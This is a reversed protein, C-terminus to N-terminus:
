MNKHNLQALDASAQDVYPNNQDADKMVTLYHGLAEKRAAVQGARNYADALALLCLAYNPNDKLAGTLITIASDAKGVECLAQGLLSAFLMKEPLMSKDYLKEYDNVASMYEGRAMAIKGSLYYEAGMVNGEGKVLTDQTATVRSIIGKVVGLQVLADDMKGQDVYVGGLLGNSRLDDPVLAIGEQLIDMAKDPQRNFIYCMAINGDMMTKLRIGPCADRAKLYAGIADRYMGKAAYTDGIHSLVFYLGSKISDAMRFQTLAEDYRGMLLLLEGHSDHPNAQDQALSTYKDIYELAKEHDGKYFYSYALLNYSPAHNPAKKLIELNEEIVKDYNWESLYKSSLFNHAEFTDPYKDLLEKTLRDVDASRGEAGAFGLNMLVKEMDSVKDIQSLAKAKEDQYEKNRDFGKDLIAIRFHAMAFNPDLKAATEFETLAEQLYLRYLFDEGKLYAQYAKESSTTVKRRDMLRYGLALGVLVFFVVLIIKRNKM